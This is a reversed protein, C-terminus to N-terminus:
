WYPDRWGGRWYGPGWGYYGPGYRQLDYKAGLTLVCNRWTDSQVAYGLRACAPGYIAMMQAVDAQAQASREQPTACASLSMALCASLPICLCAALTRASRMRPPPRAPRQLGFRSPPVSRRAPARVFSCTM